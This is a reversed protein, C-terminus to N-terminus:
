WMRRSASIAARTTYSPRKCPLGPNNPGPVARRCVGLGCTGNGAYKSPGSNDGTAHDFSESRHLIRLGTMRGGLVCVQGGWDRDLVLAPGVYPNLVPM